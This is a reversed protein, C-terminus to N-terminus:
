SHPEHKVSRAATCSSSSAPSAAPTMTKRCLSPSRGDAGTAADTVAARRRFPIRARAQVQSSIPPGKRPPIITVRKTPPIRCATSAIMAAAPTRM